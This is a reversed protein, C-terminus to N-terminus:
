SFPAAKGCEIQEDKGKELFLYQHKM